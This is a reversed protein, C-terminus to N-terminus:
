GEELVEGVGPGEEVIVILQESVPHDLGEAWVTCQFHHSGPAPYERVDPKDILVGTATTIHFGFIESDGPHIIRDAGGIYVFEANNEKYFGPKGSSFESVKIVPALSEQAPQLLQSKHELHIKVFKAAVKGKNRIVVEFFAYGRSVSVTTNLTEAERIMSSPLDKVGALGISIEPKQEVAKRIQYLQHMLLPLGVIAIAVQWWGSAQSPSNPWAWFVVVAIAMIIAVIILKPFHKELIWDLIQNGRRM